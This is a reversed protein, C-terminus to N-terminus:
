SKNLSFPSACSLKTSHMFAEKLCGHGHQFIWHALPRVKQRSDDNIDMSQTHSCRNIQCLRCIQVPVSSNNLLAIFVCITQHQGFMSLFFHLVFRKSCYLIVVVLVVGVSMLSVPLVIVVSNM